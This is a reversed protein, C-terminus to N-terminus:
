EIFAFLTLFIFIVAMIIVLLPHVGGQKQIANDIDADTVYHAEIHQIRKMTFQYYLSNAKFGLILSVVFTTLSPLDFYYVNVVMILIMLSLVFLGTGYMKRYFLWFFSFFLAAYNFDLTKKQMRLLHFKERYYNLYKEGVFLALRREQTQFNPDVSQGEHELIEINKGPSKPLDFENTM